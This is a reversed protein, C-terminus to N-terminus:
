KKAKSPQIATLLNLWGLIFSLGGLPTIAGIWNIGSVHAAKLFSLLYLSGCFLLLGVIFFIGSLRLRKREERLYLLGTLALAGTHYFQYQVATQYTHMSQPELHGSLAHAGFAGLAVALAGSLFSVSLFSNAM